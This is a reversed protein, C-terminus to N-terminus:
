KQQYRSGWCQKIPIPFFKFTLTIIRALTLPLFLLIRLMMTVRLRKGEDMGMRMDKSFLLTSNNILFINKGLEADIEKL